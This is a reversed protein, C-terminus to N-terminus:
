IRYISHELSQPHLLPILIAQIVLLHDYGTINTTAASMFSTPDLRRSIPNEKTAYFQLQTNKATQNKKPKRRLEHLLGISFANPSSVVHPSLFLALAPIAALSKRRIPPGSLALVGACGQRALRRALFGTLRGPQGLVGVIVVSRFRNGTNLCPSAIM